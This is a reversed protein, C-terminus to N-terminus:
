DLDRISHRNHVQWLLSSVVTAMAEMVKVLMIAELLGVVEEV